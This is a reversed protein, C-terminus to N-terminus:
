REKEYYSLGKKFCLYLGEIFSALPICMIICIIVIKSTSVNFDRCRRITISFLYLTLVVFLIARSSSAMMASRSIAIVFFTRASKSRTHGHREAGAPAYRRWKKRGEGRSKARTHPIIFSYDRSAAYRGVGDEDVSAPFRLAPATVALAANSEPAPLRLLSGAKKM